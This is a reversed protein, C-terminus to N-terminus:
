VTIGRKQLHERLAARMRALTSKITGSSIGLEASIERVSLMYFYRQLFIRQRVADLGRVFESLAERLAISDVMDTDESPLTEAIEEFILGIEPPRHRKICRLRNLALNRTIKTLYASLYTPRKPPITQWARMYTDSECEDADSISGLIKLAVSSLLRGYKTKTEEIAREDRAFYMEIIRSDDM